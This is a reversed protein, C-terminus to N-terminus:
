ARGRRSGRLHNALLRADEAADSWGRGIGAGCNPCRGYETGDGNEYSHYQGGCHPCERLATM